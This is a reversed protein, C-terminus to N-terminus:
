FPIYTGSASGTTTTFTPLASGSNNFYYELTPTGKNEPRLAMNMYVDHHHRVAESDLNFMNIGYLVGCMCIVTDDGWKQAHCGLMESALDLDM